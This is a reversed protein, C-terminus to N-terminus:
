PRTPIRPGAPGAPRRASTDAAAPAPAPGPGAAQLRQIVQQTIDLSRDATIISNGAAVDFVFSWNFEARMGELVANVRQMIPATLEQERAEAQQQLEGARQQARQQMQRIADERQQRVAPTLAVQTRQYEAVASDVQNQLREVETRFGAMERTFLSEAAARGPTNALVIQSNLFVFRQGAPATNQARLSPALAGLLLAAAPVARMIRAMLKEM